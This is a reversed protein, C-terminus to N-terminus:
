AAATGKERMCTVQHTNGNWWSCGPLSGRATLVTNERPPLGASLLEMLKGLLDTDSARRQMHGPWGHTRAQLSM